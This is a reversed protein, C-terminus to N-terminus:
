IYQLIWLCVLHEKLYYMWYSMICCGVPLKGIHKIGHDPIYELEM